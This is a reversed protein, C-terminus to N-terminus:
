GDSEDNEIGYDRRLDAIKQRLAPLYAEVKPIQNELMRWVAGPDMTYYQHASLNRLKRWGAVDIGSNKEILPALRKLEEAISDLMKAGIAQHGESGLFRREGLPAIEAKVFAVYHAAAAVARTLHRVDRPRINKAM